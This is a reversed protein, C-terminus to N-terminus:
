ETTRLEGIVNVPGGDNGDVLLPAVIVKVLGTLDQELNMDEIIIFRRGEGGLLSHHAAMTEELYDICSLSPVDM